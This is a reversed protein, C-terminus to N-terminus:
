SNDSRRKAAFGVALLGTALLAYSSPEPVPATLVRIHDGPDKASITFTLSNGSYSFSDTRAELGVFQNAYSYNVASSQYASSGALGAQTTFVATIASDFTLTATLTEVRKPEFFIYWSNGLAGSKEGVFYLTSTNILGEGVVTSSAYEAFSVPASSTSVTATPAAAHAAAGFLVLSLSATLRAIM